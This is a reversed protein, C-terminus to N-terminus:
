RARLVHGVIRAKRRLAVSVSGFEKKVGRYPREFEVRQISDLERSSGSM